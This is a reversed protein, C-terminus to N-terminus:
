NLFIFFNPMVEGTIQHWIGACLEYICLYHVLYCICTVYVALNVCVDCLHESSTWICCMCTWMNLDLECLDSSCLGFTVGLTGWSMFVFCSFWLILRRKSRTSMAPSAPNLKKSRTGM